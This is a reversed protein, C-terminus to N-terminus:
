RRTSGGTIYYCIPYALTMVCMIVTGVGSDPTTGFVTQFIDIFAYYYWEMFADM